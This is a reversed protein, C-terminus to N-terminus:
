ARSLVQGAHHLAQTPAGILRMRAAISGRLFPAPRSLFRRPTMGLFYRADRLYHPQDFYAPDIGGGGSADLGNDRLFSRIFRARRLLTKPPLGFYRLAVRRLSSPSLGAADALAGIDARADCSVAANIAAISAEEPHPDRMMPLLAADLAAGIEDDDAAEELRAVLTSAWGRPLLRELPVMHDRYDSAAPWRLRAWGVPSIGIGISVGGHSTVDVAQTVPGNVMAQPVATVHSRELRISVPGADLLLSIGPMVPLFPDVRSDRSTCGFANYASIATALAPHPMFFRVRTGPPM